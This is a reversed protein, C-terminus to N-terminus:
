FISIESSALKSITRELYRIVFNSILRCPHAPQDACTNSSAGGMKLCNRRCNKVLVLNFCSIGCHCVVSWGVAGCLLYVSCMCGCCVFTLLRSCKYRKRPLIIALSSLVGLVVVCFLLKEFNCFYILLRQPTTSLGSAKYVLTAPEM